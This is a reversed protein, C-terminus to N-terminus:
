DFCQWNYPCWTQISTGSVCVNILRKIHYESPKRENQSECESRFLCCSNTQLWLKTYLYQSSQTIRFRNPQSLLCSLLLLLLANLIFIILPFFILYIWITCSKRYHKKLTNKRHKILVTMYKYWSLMGSREVVIFICINM